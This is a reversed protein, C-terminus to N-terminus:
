PVKFEPAIAPIQSPLDPKKYAMMILAILAVGDGLLLWPSELFNEPFVGVNIGIGLLVGATFAGALPVLAWWRWGRRWTIVTLIIEIILM